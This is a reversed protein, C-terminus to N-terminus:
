FSILDAMWSPLDLLITPGPGKVGPAIPLSSMQIASGGGFNLILAGAFIKGGALMPSGVATIASNKRRWSSHARSTFSASPRLKFLILALVPNGPNGGMRRPAVM